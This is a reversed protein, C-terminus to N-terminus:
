LRYRCEVPLPVAHFDPRNTDRNELNVFLCEDIVAGAISRPRAMGQM